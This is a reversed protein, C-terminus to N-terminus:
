LEIMEKLGLSLKKFTDPNIFQSLNEVSVSARLMPFDEIDKNLIVTETPLVADVANALEVLSTEKGSAANIIGTAEQPSLVSYVIRAADEVHLFDAFVKSGNTIEIKNHKKASEIFNCLIGEWKMKPGYLASFRLQVLPFKYIQSFTEFIAEQMLKSATYLVNRGIPMSCYTEKLPVPWPKNNVVLTSCNILKKVSNQNELWACINQTGLLNSQYIKELYAADLFNGGPLVSACNIVYDYHNVILTDFSKKHSIDFHFKCNVGTRSVSDFAIGKESFLKCLETGLLGNGGFILVKM